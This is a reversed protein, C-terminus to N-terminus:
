IQKPGGSALTGFSEAGYGMLRCLWRLVRAEIIAFNAWQAVRRCKSETDFLACPGCVSRCFAHSQVPRLLAPQSSGDLPTRYRTHIISFIKQSIGKEPLPKTLSGKWIPLTPLPLLTDQRGARKVFEHHDTVAAGLQEHQKSIEDIM